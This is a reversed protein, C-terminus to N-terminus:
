FLEATDTANRYRRSGLLWIVATRIKTRQTANLAQWVADFDPHASIDALRDIQVKAPRAIFARTTEDWMDARTPAQAMDLTATGSPLPNAVVTGVSLLRGTTTDYLATWPM